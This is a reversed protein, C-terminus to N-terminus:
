AARDTPCVRYLTGCRRCRLVVCGPEPESAKEMSVTGAIVAESLLANCQWGSFSPHRATCRLEPSM